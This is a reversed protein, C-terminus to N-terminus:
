VSTVADLQGLGEDLRPWRESARGGKSEFVHWKGDKTAVLFDPRKAGAASASVAAPLTATAHTFVDCHLFASMSQGGAKLWRSAALYTGISGVIFSVAATESKELGKAFSRPSLEHKYDTTICAAATEMRLILYRALRRSAEKDFALSSSWTGRKGYGCELAACIAEHRRVVQKVPGLSGKTGFPANNTKPYKTKITKFPDKVRGNPLHTFVSAKAGISPPSGGALTAPAYYDFRNGYGAPYVKSTAM